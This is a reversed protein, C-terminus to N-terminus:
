MFIAPHDVMSAPSAMELPACVCVMMLVLLSKSRLHRKNKINVAAMALRVHSLFINARAVVSPALKNCPSFAKSSVFKAMVAALLADRPKAELNLALAMVRSAIVGAQYGFKLRTVRPLRSSLSRWTTVYILVKIYRHGQSVDAVKVLSIALSTASLTLLVAVVLAVAVLVVQNISALMVMSIM